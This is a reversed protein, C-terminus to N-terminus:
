AIVSITSSRVPVGLDLGDYPTIECYWKQGAELNSSDVVTRGRLSSAESFTSGDSSMYWKIISLDDQVTNTIDIDTMTYSVELQSTPSPNEPGIVVASVVPVTNVITVTQSTHTEGIALDTKPIVECYITNGIAIAGTSPTLSKSALKEADTGSYAYVTTLFLDGNVHWKFQTNTELASQGVDETVFDYEVVLTSATNFGSSLEGDLYPVLRTNSASPQRPRIKVSQSTIPSGFDNGDSPTVVFYLVDNVQLKNQALLDNNTWSTTNNIEPLLKGNKYWRILTGSEPNQNPDTYTYSAFFSSGADPYEPIVKVDSARPALRSLEPPKVDNTSYMFGVGTLRITDDHLRNRLRVGVRMIDDNIVQMQFTKDSAQKTNFRIQGERPFEKYGSTVASLVGSSSVDYVTVQSTPDWAGYTSTYLMGDVSTLSELDIVDDEDQTRNLLVTKGYERLVPRAKSYFDLWNHSNSTAVGIEVVANEPLHGEIAAAVQQANTLVDEDNLFLYDARESSVHWVINLLRPAGTATSAAGFPDSVIGTLLTVEIYVAKVITDTLTISQSGYFKETFDSFNYGDESYKFRVYGNTNTPLSFTLTVGTIATLESFRITRRYIGYGLGGVATGLAYNVINTVFSDSFLSIPQGGTEETLKQVDGVQTRQLQSSLTLPFSTSCLTYILPVKQDGDISNIEDEIQNRTVLSLNQSNDSTVYIMKRLDEVDDDSMLRATDYLASYLQSAGFAVQHDMIDLYDVVETATSSNTALLANVQPIWDVRNYFTCISTSLQNRIETDLPILSASSVSQGTQRDDDDDETGTASGTLLESIKSEIAAQQELDLDSVTRGFYYDDVVTVVTEIDYLERLSGSEITTPDIEVTALAEGLASLQERTLDGQFTENPDTPTNALTNNIFESLRKVDTLPDESRPLLTVAAVGDEVTVNQETYLVPFLYMEQDLLRASNFQFQDSNPDTVSNQARRIEEATITNIELDIDPANGSGDGGLIRDAAREALFETLLSDIEEIRLRGRVVVEINGSLLKGADDTLTIFVGASERGLAEVNEPFAQVNIQVYGRQHGSTMGGIIFIERSVMIAGLSAKGRPMPRLETYESSVLDISDITNSTTSYSHNSGGIFYAKDEVPDYVCAGHDRPEPFVPWDDDLSDSIDIYLDSGVAYESGPRFKFGTKLYLFPSIETADEIESEKTSLYSEQEDQTLNRYYNSGLVASRLEQVAKAIRASREANIEEQTKPFSGGWIYYHLAGDETSSYPSEIPNRYFGFPTIRQYTEANSPTISVWTDDNISYRYIYANRATAEMSQSISSIGCTVYIYDGVVQADGFAVGGPMRSLTSNWTASNTHFAEIRTSVNLIGSLLEDNEVGGICYVIGDHVVTMGFARPTPIDAVFAWTKSTTNFVECYPTLGDTTYSHDGLFGGFLYVPVFDYPIESAESITAIFAGMRQIQSSVEYRYDNRAPEFVLMENTVVPHPETEISGDDPEDPPPEDPDPLIPELTNGLEVTETIEREATGLRDYRCTVNIFSGFEVNPIPEITFYALSRKAGTPNLLPDNVLRTYVIGGSSPYCDDTVGICTSLRVIDQGDGVISVEIPTGDPVPEGAFSAQVVFTHRSVGDFLYKLMTVGDVVEQELRRGNVRIDAIRFRLPEVWGIYVPPIGEEYSGGGIITAERDDIIITTQGYLPAIDGVWKKGGLPCGTIDKCISRWECPLVVEDDTIVAASGQADKCDDEKPNNDGVFKNCRVYFDMPEQRVPINAIPPVGLEEAITHSMSNYSLLSQSGTYPDEYFSVDWLIECGVPVSMQVIQDDDLPFLQGGVIQEVCNRFCGAGRVSSIAPNKAIQMHILSSGDAYDYWHPEEGSQGPAANMLFRQNTTERTEVCEFFFIEGSTVTQEDYTVSATIQYEEAFCCSEQDQDCKKIVWNNELKGVPGFFVHRSVGGSTSSFVGTYLRSVPDTSYFPRDKAYRKKTLEWEILTGDPIPETITPDDPNVTYVNAFQEAVDVGDPFPKSINTEVVVNSVFKVTHVADAFTGRYDISAYIDIHDPKEPHQVEIDVVSKSVFNSTPNGDQDYEPESVTSTAYSGNPTQVNEPRVRLRPAGGEREYKYFAVNVRTGDALAEGQYQLEIRCIYPEYARVFGGNIDTVGFDDDDEEQPCSCAAEGGIEGQLYRVKKNMLNIMSMKIPNTFTVRVPKTHFEFLIGEQDESNPDLVRYRARMDILYRERRALIARDTTHGLVGRVLGSRVVNSVLSTEALAEDSNCDDNFKAGYGIGIDNGYADYISQSYPSTLSEESTIYTRYEISTCYEIQLNDIDDLAGGYFDRVHVYLNAAENFWLDLQESRITPNDWQLSLSTPNIMEIHLNEIDNPVFDVDYSSSPTSTAYAEESIRGLRDYTVFTYYHLKGNTLPLETAISSSGSSRHVVYEDTTDTVELGDSVIRGKEVSVSVTPYNRTSYYIKTGRWSTTTPNQWEILIKRDSPTMEINTVPDPPSTAPLNDSAEIHAGLVRADTRDCVNGDQNITYVTYYYDGGNIFDYTDLMYFQGSEADETGVLDGDETHSSISRYKRVIRVQGNPYNFNEGIEWSILVERQSNDAAVQATEVLDQQFIPSEATYLASIYADLRLTDSISLQAICGFYNSVPWSSGSDDPRGGIYLTHDENASAFAFATNYGQAVGDIFVEAVNLAAATRVFKVTVMTWEREPIAIGTDTLGAGIANGGAVGLNGGVLGIVWGVHNTPTSETTGVVWRQIQGANPYRYLWINVTISSGSRYGDVSRSIDSTIHDYLGDFRVGAPNKNEDNANYIISASDGSWFSDEVTDETVIGHYGNGSSDFCFRGSAEQFNYIIITHSDRQIGPLVRPTASAYSVGYPLIRDRPVGRIFRGSSFHNDSNYTWIGYYYSAGETLGDDRVADIIGDAVVMGDSPHDPYHDTRRVVRVGAFDFSSDGFKSKLLLEFDSLDAAETARALLLNTKTPTGGFSFLNFKLDSPYANGLREIMEKLYTYRSGNVDNWTMSGSDDVVVSILKPELDLILANTGSQAATRFHEGDTFDDTTIEAVGPSKTQIYSSTSAIVQTSILGYLSVSYVKDDDPEVTYNWAAFNTRSGGIQWFDIEIEDLDHIAMGTPARLDYNFKGSGIMDVSPLYSTFSTDPLDPLYPDNVSVGVTIATTFPGRSIPMARSSGGEGDAAIEDAFTTRTTFYWQELITQEPSSSYVTFTYLGGEEIYLSGFRQWEPDGYPDQEGAPEICRLHTEDDDFSWYLSCGSLNALVWMEYVGPATFYINYTLYPARDVIEEVTDHTSTQLSNIIPIRGVPQFVWSKRSSQFNAAYFSATGYMADIYIHEETEVTLDLEAKDVTDDASSTLTQRIYDGPVFAYDSTGLLTDPAASSLTLSNVVPTSSPELFLRVQQYRGRALIGLDGLNADEDSLFQGPTTTGTWDISNNEQGFSSEAARLSVSVTSSGPTEFSGRVSMPLSGTEGTDVVDSLFVSRSHREPDTYVTNRVDGVLPWNVTVEDIYGVFGNSSDAQCGVTVRQSGAPNDIDCYDAEEGDSFAVYEDVMFVTRFATNYFHAYHWGNDIYVPGGRPQLDFVQQPDGANPKGYFRAKIQNDTDVIIAWSIVSADSSGFILAPASSYDDITSKFWCGIGFSGVLAGAIDGNQVEYYARRNSFYAGNLTTTGSPRGVPELCHCNDIIQNNRVTSTNYLQGFRYQVIIHGLAQTVSPVTYPLYLKNGVFRTEGAPDQNIWNEWDSQTQWTKESM